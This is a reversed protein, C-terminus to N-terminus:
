YDHEVFREFSEKLQHQWLRKDANCAFSAEFSNFALQYAHRATLGTAAFVQTFNENIYGGFYAPDDSNVTAALGADLLRGLNHQALSPFVCLKQNSLPCVTLAIRQHALRQMLAADHVAQVGHDIREVRLVNLASWIYAPPGEEGAHAVLHLGRERCRAFVRAFKEPPHGQESSDLGVGVIKDLLPEAQELTEFAAKESLHRLFCLILTASIGLGTRADACARHLGDIVTEIAVGRATHTQPDFFIEAHLVRDRAARALYAHALDYFDQEHRLVSAGAYYIDLFSQLNCFAYASRLEAVSAYPLQLGNRQALAFILEPELSGEIHIHLEAKPMARLLEPLRAASVPPIKFM